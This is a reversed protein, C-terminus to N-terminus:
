CVARCTSTIIRTRVHVHVHLQRLFKWMCTCTCYMHMCICHVHVHVYAAKVHAVNVRGEGRGGERRTSDPYRQPNPAHVPSPRPGSSFTTASISGLDTCVYMCCHLHVHVNRLVHICYADYFTFLTMTKGFPKYLIYCYLQATCKKSKIIYM